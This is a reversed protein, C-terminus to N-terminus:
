MYMHTYIYVTKPSLLMEAQYKLHWNHMNKITLNGMLHFMNYNGIFM